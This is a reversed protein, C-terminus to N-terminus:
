HTWSQLVAESSFLWKKLPLWCKEAKSFFFFFVWKKSSRAKSKVIQRHLLILSCLLSFGFQFAQCYCWKTILPPIFKIQKNVAFSGWVLGPCKYWYMEKQWLWSHHKKGQGPRVQSCGWAEGDTEDAKYCQIFGLHRFFNSNWGSRKEWACTDVESLLEQM